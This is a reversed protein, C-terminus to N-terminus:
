KKREGSLIETSTDLDPKYDNQVYEIDPPAVDFDPRSTDPTEQSTEPNEKPDTM